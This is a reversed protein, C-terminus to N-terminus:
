LEENGEFYEIKDKETKNERIGALIYNPSFGKYIRLFLYEKSAVKVKVFYNIGSVVQTKYEVAKFQSYNRRTQSVVTQKVAAVANRCDEDAIKTESLGGATTSGLQVCCFLIVALLVISLKHM